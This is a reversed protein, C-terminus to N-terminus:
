ATVTVDNLAPSTYFVNVTICAQDLGAIHYSAYKLVQSRLLKKKASQLEGHERHLICYFVLALSSCSGGSYIM